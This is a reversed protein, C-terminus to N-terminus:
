LDSFNILDDNSFDILDKEKIINNNRKIQPAKILLSSSRVPVIPRNFETDSLSSDSEDNTINQKGRRKMLRNYLRISEKDKLRRWRKIKKIIGEDPTIEDMNQRRYNKILDKTPIFEEDSEGDFQNYKLIKSDKLNGLINRIVGTGGSSSGVGSDQVIVFKKKNWEKDNWPQYM